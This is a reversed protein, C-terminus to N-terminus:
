KTTGYVYKIAERWEKTANFGKGWKQVARASISWQRPRQPKKYQLPIIRKYGTSDMKGKFKYLGAPIKPHQNSGVVFTGKYRKRALARLFKVTKQRGSGGGEENMTKIQNSPKFRAKPAVKNALNGRRGARTPSYKRPSKAGKEQEAWKTFRKRDKYTGASAIHPSKGGLPARTYNFSTKVFQSSRVIMRENITNPLHKHKTVKAQNTVLYAMARNLKRPATRLFRVAEELGDFEVKVAM